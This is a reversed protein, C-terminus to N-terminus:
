LNLSFPNVCTEAGTRDRGNMVERCFYDSELSSFGMDSLDQGDEVHRRDIPAHEIRGQLDAKLIELIPHCM